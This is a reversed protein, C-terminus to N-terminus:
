PTGEGAAADAVGVNFAAGDPIPALDQNFIQWRGRAEDYRVGVPHDNYVGGGGGPNWNPTVYLRVGPKGNVLPHDLYTENATEGASASASASASNSASAADSAADPATSRHVFGASKQPVTIRYATGPPVAALDQNFVAWRRSQGEYWVGINHEYAGDDATGEEPVPEALVLADPNGDIGPRSVYTYDGRSNEDSALHVFSDDAVAEEAARTGRADDGSAGDQPSKPANSGAAPTQAPDQQWGAVIAAGAGAGLAVFFALLLGVAYLLLRAWSPFRM